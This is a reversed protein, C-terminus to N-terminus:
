KIMKVCLEFATEFAESNCIGQGAIDYATGHAPTTIPFPMGGVITVGKEFNYLKMAIQGQDHYMTVIADYKEFADIFIVDASIPGVVNMGNNKFANITPIIIDNEEKGCTGNEGCHPNLASVAIRPSKVGSKKLTEFILLIANGLTSSNIKKYVESLPIHSTVRSTYLGNLYNIEGSPTKLNFYDELLEHESNFNMGGLKMAVKNLPAFCIGHAYGEKCLQCCFLLNEKEERGLEPDVHGFLVDHKISKTDYLAINCVTKKIEEKSYLVDYECKVGVIDLAKEFVKKDGVIVVKANRINENKQIAKAILEGGIGAADGLPILIIKKMKYEGKETSYFM